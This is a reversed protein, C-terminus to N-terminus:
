RSPIAVLRSAQARQVIGRETLVPEMLIEDNLLNHPHDRRLRRLRASEVPPQTSGDHDAEGLVGVTVMSMNPGHYYFAEVGQSRLARATREAQGRFRRLDEPTPKANDPRAYVRVQLTYVADAPAHRQHVGRLNAEDPADAGAVVPPMLIAAAFPQVEGISASRVRRLGDQAAPEAPDAYRGYAIVPRRDRLALYADTLGTSRVTDLMREADDLRGTPVAAVLVSWWSPEVPGDGVGPEDAFVGPAEAAFPALAARDPERQGPESCGAFQPLLLAGALVLRLRAGVARGGFLSFVAKPLTKGTM